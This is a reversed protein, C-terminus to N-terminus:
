GHRKLGLSARSGRRALGIATVTVAVEVMTVLAVLVTVTITVTVTVDYWRVAHAAAALKIFPRLRRATVPLLVTRTM